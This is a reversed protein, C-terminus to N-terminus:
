FSLKLDLGFSRISPIAFNDYGAGGIGTTTNLEPDFPANNKFFFLNKGVPGINAAKFVNPDVPIRYSLAVDRWRFHTGDYVQGEIIGDGNGIGQYWAQAPVMTVANGDQDVADVRGGGADR